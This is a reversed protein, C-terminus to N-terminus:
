GKTYYEKIIRKATGMGPIGMKVTAGTIGAAKCIEKDVSYCNKYSWSLLQAICGQLSKKSNRVARAIEANEFCQSKIYEVWDEILEVPKLEAAEITIKGIGAMMDDCLYLLDGDIFAQAIDENIGNEVTLKKINTLDGEKRLNVALTNIEEASDMNGFLEFM